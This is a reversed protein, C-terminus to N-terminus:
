KLNNNTTMIKSCIYSFIGFYNSIQATKNLKAGINEFIFVKHIIFMLQSTCDARLTSTHSAGAGQPDSCTHFVFLEALRNNGDHVRKRLEHRTMRMQM